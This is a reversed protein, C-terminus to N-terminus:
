CATTACSSRTTTGGPRTCRRSCTRGSRPTAHRPVGDIRDPRVQLQFCVRRMSRSRGHRHRHPPPAAPRGALDPAPGAPLAHDDSSESTSTTSTTPTSCSRTASCCSATPASRTSASTAPRSRTARTARSTATSSPRPPTRRSTASTPRTGCRSRAHRHRGRRVRADPEAHRPRDARGQGQVGVDVPLPCRGRHRGHDALHHGEPEPYTQLLAATKDFSTQDDDDGYVTDVLEINPHNAALDEEMM